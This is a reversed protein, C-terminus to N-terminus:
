PLFKQVTSQYNGFMGAFGSNNDKDTDLAWIDDYSGSGIPKGWLLTGLADYKILFLDDGGTSNITGTGFDTFSYFIGGVIITGDPAVSVLKGREYYTKGFHNAWQLTGNSASLKVLFADEGGGNTLTGNGFDVAGTYSGTVVLNGAADFDVGVAQDTGTDGYRKSWLHQGMPNFRAVWCDEGGNSVLTTGGVNISSQFSGVLALNGSTDMALDRFYGDYPALKKSWIHSGDMGSFKALYMSGNADAIIPGGGFDVTGYIVGLVVFNGMADSAVHRTEITGTGLCKSWVHAGTAGAYKAAFARSCSISNGGGVDTTAGSVLEGVVITNAMGDSFNAIGVDTGGTGIRRSWLHMGGPNLKLVLMDTSAATIPGGGFDITGYFSGTLLVNGNEDFKFDRINASEFSASGYYKQWASMGTPKLDFKASVSKATDMTVACMGNGSCGAGTWGAFISDGAPAATLTVVTGASYTAACQAGCNIGAPM